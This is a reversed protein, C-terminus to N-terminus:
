LYFCLIINGAKGRYLLERLGLHSVCPIAKGLVVVKNKDVIFNMKKIKDM